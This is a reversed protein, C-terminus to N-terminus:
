QTEKALTRRVATAVTDVLCARQAHTLTAPPTLQLVGGDPACPLTIVGRRMCDVVTRWVRAGATDAITTGSALEIGLLLGRGRVEVVGDVGDLRDRLASIMWAGGDRAAEVLGEDDIVRLTEVAAACAVPHGLFTSTHLAEGTAPGWASMVASRGLCAAIPWGGGLAKGM